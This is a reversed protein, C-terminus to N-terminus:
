LNQLYADIIDSICQRQKPKLRDLKKTLEDYVYEKGTELQGSLIYDAPVGLVEVISIFTNLSPFKVGREIDSLYTPGIGIKEAVYEQTLGKMNRAKRIRLGLEKKDM